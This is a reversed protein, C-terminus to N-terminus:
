FRDPQTLSGVSPPGVPSVRRVADFGVGNIQRTRDISVRSCPHSGFAAFPTFSTSNKQDKEFRAPSFSEYLFICTYYYASLCRFWARSVQNKKWLRKVLLPSCWLFINFVVVVVNLSHLTVSSIQSVQFPFPAHYFGLLKQFFSDAM